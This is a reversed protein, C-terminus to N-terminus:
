IAERTLIWKKIADYVVDRRIPKVIYDSMGAELCKERDGDMANATMAIIPVQEFGAQRIMRTAQLGDMEPMQVDMFILDIQDPASQYREIAERGNDAVEVQYGAKSLMMRALKQSAPNDEVLLIRVSQKAEELLTYQTVISERKDSTDKNEKGLLNELMELLKERRAPKLLFADFGALQSRKAGLHTSSSFALLPLGSIPSELTRIAQAVQYGSVEPMQIDLICLDFPDESQHHHLQTPVVAAGDRLAICRVAAAELIHQMIELNTRNDDIVLVKKGVLSGRTFQKKRGEVTREFWGAFHFTAGRSVASEAWVDGEMLRALQRCIALGLGTGGYKRTTFSGVQHFAEFIEELKAEPIGIGTDRIKAHLKLRKDTENEVKLSLEIEGSETFKAANGMLNVLVQRFRGPDGKIFAPVEDDIRCLIEVDKHKVRPYITECVDYATIEPDFEIRELDLQRAEIKSFDLIDDILALLAEGNRRITHAYDIQEDSLPSDLLMDTFGVVANMPTRIEHSMRALFESKATNASRAAVTLQEAQEIAAQLQRNVKELERNAAEVKEEARKRATIDIQMAIIEAVREGQHVPFLTGFLTRPEGDALRVQWEEPPDPEGSTWIQEVVDEFEQVADPYLITDQIRCGLAQNAELGYMHKSAENWLRITGERDFGQIAVLPTREIVTVFRSLAAQLEKQSKELAGLMSNIREAVTSVEDSGTVSVRAAPDGRTGIGKVEASLRALRSLVFNELFFLAILGFIACAVLLWVILYRLSARGQRYIDRALDVRLLLVPNGYIDQLKTYGAVFNSSLPQVFVPAQETLADAAVSFDKPMQDDDPEAVTISLHTTAAMRRVQDADLYRGMILAGRVPGNGDSTLIPRSAVLIPGEPLKILGAHSSKSDPHQLLPAGDSLHQLMGGPFPVERATSLEFAKNFVLGGSSNTVAILNIQLESFISDTFNARIFDPNVNEVFAYMDDWCALGGVIKNFNVLSDNLAQLARSVDRGTSQKELDAFSRLLINSSVFYSAAILGALTIGVVLLTKARLTM